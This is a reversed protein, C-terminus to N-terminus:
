MEFLTTEGMVLQLLNVCDWATAVCFPISLSARDAIPRVFLYGWGIPQSGDGM